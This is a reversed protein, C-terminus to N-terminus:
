LKQLNGKLNERDMWLTLEDEKSLVDFTFCVSLNFLFTIILMSGILMKLISNVGRNEM